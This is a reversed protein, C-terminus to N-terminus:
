MTPTGIREVHRPRIQTWFRGCGEVRRQYRRPTFRPIVLELRKDLRPSAGPMLFIPRAVETESLVRFTDMGKPSLNVRGDRAASATFFMQQKALFARLEPTLAPHFQAMTILDYAVNRHKRSQPSM